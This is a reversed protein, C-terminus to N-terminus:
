YNYKRLSGDSSIVLWKTGNIDGWPPDDDTGCRIKEAHKNILVKTIKGGFIRYALSTDKAVLDTAELLYYKRIYNRIEYTSEGSATYGTRVRKPSSYEYGKIIHKTNNSGKTEWNIDIKSYNSIDLGSSSTSEKWNHDYDRLVIKFHVLSSYGEKYFPFVTFQSGKEIQIGLDYFNSNAIFPLQTDSHTQKILKSAELQRSSEAIKNQKEQITTKAFQNLNKQIDIGWSELFSPSLDKPSLTIIEDGSGLMIRGDSKEIVTYIDSIYSNEVVISTPKPSSNLTCAGFLLLFFVPFKKMNKIM